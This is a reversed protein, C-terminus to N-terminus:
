DDFSDEFAEISNEIRNWIARALAQNGDPDNPYIQLIGDENGDIANALDVGGREPNFIDSLDFELKMIAKSGEELTFGRDDDFEIEFDEEEDTWFEFPTGEYTGRILISKRFMESNSVKGKEIEFEIEEYVANPLNLETIKQSISQGNRVLDIEFPGKLEIEDDSSVKGDENIYRYDDDLELEIEHINIKFENIVVSENLRFGQTQSSTTPLKASFVIQVNGDQFGDKDCSSLFFTGIALLAFLKIVGSNKM